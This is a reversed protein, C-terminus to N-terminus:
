SILAIKVLFFLWQMLANNCGLLVDSEKSARTYM